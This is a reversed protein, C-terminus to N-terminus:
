GFFRIQSHIGEIELPSLDEVNPPMYSEYTNAQFLNQAM